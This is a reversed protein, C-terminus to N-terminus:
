APARSWRRCSCGAPQRVPRRGRGHGGDAAGRHGRAARAAAPRAEETDEVVYDAIGEVLAHRLREHSRRRAGRWTAAPAPGGREGGRVAEAIELMRETADPAGTSCWTRSASACSRSSTTTSRCRAPTSSAWTWAPASRTTCSCPTSRRACRDNGRFSFSVNSVGGSVLVGPLEAKIRRTAEIYAIAYGAHEEIGTGIAFINPDLIVDTPDFGAQETLLDIPASARDDVKREVTDAQGQEDFAMVIVAAGYRRALRAQRLFEAEGEKLSMRTSSRGARSTSAPGGRDGGVELSDIMSRAGQSIDPEGAILNLFRAM